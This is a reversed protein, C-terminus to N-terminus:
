GINGSRGVIRIREEVEIKEGINELGERVMTRAGCDVPGGGAVIRVM